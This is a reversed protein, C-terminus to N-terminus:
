VVEWLLAPDGAWQALDPILVEDEHISTPNAEAAGCCSSEIKNKIQKIICSFYKNWLKIVKKWSFQIVNYRGINNAYQLSAYSHNISHCKHSITDHYKDILM